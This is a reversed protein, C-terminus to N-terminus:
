WMFGIALGGTLVWFRSPDRSSLESPDSLPAKFVGFPPVYGPHPLSDWATRIADLNEFSTLSRTVTFFPMVQWQEDIPFVWQLRLKVAGIAPRFVRRMWAPDAPPYKMTRYSARRYRHYYVGVGINLYGKRQEVDVATRTSLLLETGIGAYQFSLASAFFTDSLLATDRGEYAAAVNLSSIGIGVGVENGWWYSLMAEAQWPWEASPQHIINQNLFDDPNYVSAHSLAGGVFAHWRLLEQGSLAEVSCVGLLFCALIRGSFM